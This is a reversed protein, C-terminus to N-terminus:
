SECSFKLSSVSGSAPQAPEGALSCKEILQFIKNQEEACNVLCAGVLKDDRIFMKKYVRGDKQSKATVGDEEMTRGMLHWQDEDLSIECFPVPSFLPTERGKLHDAVVRGQHELFLAYSDFNRDLGDTSWKAMGDVAYINPVQTQFSGSVPISGDVVLDTGRLLRLDACADSFIVVQASLVKGTKLRVAKVDGNGLIESIENDTIVRIGTNVLLEQIVQASEPDLCACLIRAEPVIWIVEKKKRALACATKLAGVGRGSIVATETLGLGQAIGQIDKLLRVGFVGDKNTGRINPWKSAETDGLILVDFDLTQKDEFAIRQKSVNIQIINKELVRIKKEQFESNGLAYVDKLPKLGALYDYFLERRYPLPGQSSILSIESDPDDARIHEVAKWSAPSHGIVVIKKM